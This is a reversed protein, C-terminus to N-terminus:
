FENLWKRFINGEQEYGMKLVRKVLGRRMTRFCVSLLGSSQACVLLDILGTLDYETKRIAYASTIFADGGCVEVSYALFDGDCDAIVFHKSQSLVSDILNKDGFKAAATVYVAAADKSVERMEIM